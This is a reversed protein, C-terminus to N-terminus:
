QLFNAEGSQSLCSAVSLLLTWSPLWLNLMRDLGTMAQGRGWEEKRATRDQEEGGRAECVRERPGPTPPQFPSYLDLGASELRGVHAPSKWLHSNHQKGLFDAENQRKDLQCSGKYDKSGERRM